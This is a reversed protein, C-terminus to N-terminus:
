ALLALTFLPRVANIRTDDIRRTDHTSFPHREGTEPDLMPNRPEPM